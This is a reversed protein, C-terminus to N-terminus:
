LGMAATNLGTVKTVDWMTIKGDLASTSFVTSPAGQPALRQICDIASNHSKWAASGGTKVQALGTASKAQFMARASAVSSKAPSDTATNAKDKKDLFGLSAWGTPSGDQTAFAIPNCDHGAGVLGTETAFTLSCLPLTELRIVQEVAAGGEPFSVLHLTSDHAAFALCSGSPSFECANIWCTAGWEQYVDAFNKPAMGPVGRFPGLDRNEDSGDVDPVFASFLRCKFDASGSVIMQSNPHWAVCLVTSKHPKKIQKSVWWSNEEEYHCIQLCKASSSVAFKRGDPSWKCHTAAYDIRLIVLSPEWTSTKESYTWVFANRDHGCTVIKNTVPSWDIGSVKMDHEHLRFAERWEPLPRDCNDFVVLENSNPSLAVHTRDGNWAHCSIGAGGSLLTRTPAM